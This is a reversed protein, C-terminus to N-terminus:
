ERRGTLLYLKFDKAPIVTKFTKDKFEIKKNNSYDLVEIINLESFPFNDNTRVVLSASKNSDNLIVALVSNKRYYTSGLILGTKKSSIDLPPNKAWYPSFTAGKLWGWDILKKRLIYFQKATGLSQWIATDHVLSYGLFHRVAHIAKPDDEHDRWYNARGPNLMYASRGFQPIFVACNGWKKGTYCALFMNPSFINFYSEDKAVQPVFDEGDVIYDAFACIAPLHSGSVHFMIKGNKRKALLINRIRMAFERTGLINHTLFKEGFDDKWGCGHKKNGCARVYAMDFYINDIGLKYFDIAKALYYLQFNRFSKSNLCGFGWVYKNRYTLNKVPFDVKYRGIEPPSAIWQEAWWAWEPCFPSVGYICSYHFRHPRYKNNPKDKKYKEDIYDPNNYNFYSHWSYYRPVKEILKARLSRDIPRVPTAQLGFEITRKSSLSCPTDIVNLVVQTSNNKINANVVLVDEKNKVHFGKLNEAFWALGRNGNGVWFMPSVFLNKKWIKNIKGSPYEQKRSMPIFSNALNGFQYKLPINIKLKDIVIKGKKVPALELKIWMFGDYEVKSTCSIKVGNKVGTTKVTVASDKQDIVVFNVKNDLKIYNTKLDIQIPAKLLNNAGTYIASPLYSNSFIYKQMLTKVGGDIVEVAKWPAPVKSSIGGRFNDWPENKGPRKFLQQYEDYENGAQDYYAVKYSYLGPSLSKVNWKLNLFSEEYKSPIKVKRERIIKGNLDFLRQVFGSNKGLIKKVDVFTEFSEKEIDTKVYRVKFTTSAKIDYTIKDGLFSNKQEGTRFTMKGDKSLRDVDLAIKHIKKEGFNLKIKKDWLCRSKEYYNGKIWVPLNNKYGKVELNLKLKGSIDPLEEFDFERGPYSDIFNLKIFNIKDNYKRWVQAFSTLEKNGPSNFSRAINLYLEKDQLPKFNNLQNFPIAVELNWYKKDVKSLCIVGESNWNKQGNKADYFVKDKNFIFHYSNEKVDLLIEVSDDEWLKDDHKKANCVLPHQIRSTLGIYLYKRDYGIFVKSRNRALWGTLDFFLNSAYSYEFKSITGNPKVKSPAIFLSIKNNRRKLKGALAQYEKEVLLSPIVKFYIKVEDILSTGKEIKWARTGLTITRYNSQPLVKRKVKSKLVGDVYLRLYKEEWSCAVFHWENRKWNKISTKAISYNGDPGMLFYLDKNLYKYILLESKDRRASFFIHPAKGSGTWDLPAVWFSVSGKQCSLEQPLKCWASNFFQRHNGIGIKLASDKISKEFLQSCDAKPNLNFFLKRGTKGIGYLTDNKKIQSGGFDAIGVGNDSNKGKEFSAYFFADEGKLNVFLFCIFFLVCIRKM